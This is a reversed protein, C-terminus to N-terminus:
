RQRIARLNLVQGFVLLAMAALAIWDGRVAAITALIAAAPILFLAVREATKQRM